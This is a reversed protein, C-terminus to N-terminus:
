SFPQGIFLEQLAQSLNMIQLLLKVLYRPISRRVKLRSSLLRLGITVQCALDPCPGNPGHM